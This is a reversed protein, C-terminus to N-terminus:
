KEIKTTMKKITRTKTEKKTKTEITKKFPPIILSIMSLKELPGKPRSVNNLPFFELLEQAVAMVLLPVGM